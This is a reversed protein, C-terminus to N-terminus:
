LTEDNLLVIDDDDDNPETLTCSTSGNPETCSTSDDDDTKASKMKNAKNKCEASLDLCRKKDEESEQRNQGSRRTREM